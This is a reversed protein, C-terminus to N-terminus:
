RALYDNEKLQNLTAKALLNFADRFEGDVSPTCDGSIM